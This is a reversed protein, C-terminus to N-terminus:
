QCVDAVDSVFPMHWFCVFLLYLGPLGAVFLGIAFLTMFVATFYRTFLTLRVASATDRM